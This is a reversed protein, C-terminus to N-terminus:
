DPLFVKLNEERERFRDRADSVSIHLLDYDLFFVQNYLIGLTKFKTQRMRPNGARRRRVAQTGGAVRM